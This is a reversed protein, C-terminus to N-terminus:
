PPRYYSVLGRYHYIDTTHHGHIGGCGNAWVHHVPCIYHSVNHNGRLLLFIRQTETKWREGRDRDEKTCQYKRHYECHYESM